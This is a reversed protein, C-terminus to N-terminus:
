KYFPAIICIDESDFSMEDMKLDRETLDVEKREDAWVGCIIDATKKTGGTPSFYIEYLM